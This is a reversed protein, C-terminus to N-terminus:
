GSKEHWLTKRIEQEIKIKDKRTAPRFVASSLASRTDKLCEKQEGNFLSPLNCTVTYYGEQACYDVIKGGDVLLMMTNPYVHIVSGNSVYNESGKKNSGKGKRVQVGRVLVTTDSMEDPEITELWSDALVGGVSSVAAKIIGM